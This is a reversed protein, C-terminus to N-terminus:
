DEYNNSQNTNNKSDGDSSDGSCNSKKDDSLDLDAANAVSAFLGIDDGNEDSNGEDSDSDDINGRADGGEEHMHEPGCVDELMVSTLGKFNEQTSPCTSIFATGGPCVYKVCDRILRSYGGGGKAVANGFIPSSLFNIFFESLFVFPGGYNEDTDGDDGRNEKPVANVGLLDGDVAVLYVVM